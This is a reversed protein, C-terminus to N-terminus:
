LRTNLRVYLQNLLYSKKSIIVILIDIKTLIFNIFNYLENEYIQNLYNFLNDYSKKLRKIVASSDSSIEQKNTILSELYVQEEDYIM